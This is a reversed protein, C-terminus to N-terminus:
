AASCRTVLATKKRSAAFTARRFTSRATVPRTGTPRTAAPSASRASGLALKPPMPALPAFPLNDVDPIQMVALDLYESFKTCTATYERGDPFVLHLKSGLEGAVHACTLITGRPSICVGSARDFRVSAPQVARIAARISPDAVERDVLKMYPNERAQVGLWPIPRPAVANDLLKPTGDPPLRLALEDFGTREIASVLSVQAPPMSQLFAARAAEFVERTGGTVQWQSDIFAYYRALLRLNRVLAAVLAPHDPMGANRGILALRQADVGLEAM